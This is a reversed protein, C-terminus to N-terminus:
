YPFTISFTEFIDANCYVMPLGNVEYYSYSMSSRWQITGDPNYSYRLITHYVLPKPTTTGRYTRIEELANTSTNVLLEMEENAALRVTAAIDNPVDVNKDLLVRYRPSTGIRQPTYGLRWAEYLIPNRAVLSDSPMPPPVIIPGGPGAAQAQSQRQAQAPFQAFVADRVTNVKDVIPKFIKSGVPMKVMLQNNANYFEISDTATKMVYYKIRDEPPLDPTNRNDLEEFRLEANGDNFVKGTISTKKEYPKYGVALERQHGESIPVNSYPPAAYRQSDLQQYTYNKTVITVDAFVANNARCALVIPVDRSTGGGASPNVVRVNKNTQGALITSRLVSIRLTTPSVYQPTYQTTGVFVSSQPTFNEGSLTLIVRTTDPQALAANPQGGLLLVAVACCFFLFQKFLFRQM